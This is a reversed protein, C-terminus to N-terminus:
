SSTSNFRAPREKPYVTRRSPSTSTVPRVRWPHTSSGLPRGLRMGLSTATRTESLRDYARMRGNEGQRDCRVGSKRRCRTESLKVRDAQEKPHRVQRHDNDEAYAELSVDM